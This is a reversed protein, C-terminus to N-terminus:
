VVSTANSASTPSPTRFPSCDVSLFSKQHTVAIKCSVTIPKNVVLQRGDVTIGTVGNPIQMQNGIACNVYSFPQLYQVTKTEDALQALNVTSLAQSTPTLKQIMNVNAYFTSFEPTQQTAKQADIKIQKNVDAASATTTQYQIGVPTAAQINNTTFM